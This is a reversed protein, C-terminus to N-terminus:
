HLVELTMILADERNDSYYGKRMGGPLFGLKSYMRQAAMNSVRVELTITKIGGARADETIKQLMREGIGKRRHEPDVAINTIHTEEVILWFCTYGIIKSEGEEPETEVVMTGAFSNLLEHKFLSYSWPTPFSQREIRLVQKLDKEEMERFRISPM